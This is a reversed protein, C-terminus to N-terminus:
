YQMVLRRNEITGVLSTGKSRLLSRLSRRGFSFIIEVHLDDVALGFTWPSAVETTDENRCIAHALSNNGLREELRMCNSMSEVDLFGLVSNVM